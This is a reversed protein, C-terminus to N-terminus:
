CCQANILLFSILGLSRLLWLDWGSKQARKVVSELVEPARAYAVPSDFSCPRDPLVSLVGLAGGQATVSLFVRGTM